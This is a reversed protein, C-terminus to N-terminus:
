QESKETPDRNVLQEGLIGGLMDKAKFSEDDFDLKREAAVTEMKSWDAENPPEVEMQIRKRELFGSDCLMGILEKTFADNRMSRPLQDRMVRIRPMAENVPIILSGGAKAKWNGGM